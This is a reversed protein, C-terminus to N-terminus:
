ANLGSTKFKKNLTKFYTLIILTATNCLTNLKNNFNAYFIKSTEYGDPCSNESVIGIILSERNYM